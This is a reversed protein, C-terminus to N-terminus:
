LPLDTIALVHLIIGGIYMFVHIDSHNATITNAALGPAAVAGTFTYVRGGVADQTVKLYYVGGERFGTGGLACNAQVIISQVNGTNWNPSAGIGGAPPNVVTVTSLQGGTVRVSSTYEAGATTLLGLVTLAGNITAAGDIQAAGTTHLTVFTAAQASIDNSLYLKGTIGDFYAVVTGTNLKFQILTTSGGIIYPNAGVMRLFDFAVPDATTWTSCGLDNMRERIAVKLSQFLTDITNASTIAGNPAAEDWPGSHAM